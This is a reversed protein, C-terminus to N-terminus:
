KVQEKIPLCEIVELIDEKNQSIRYLGDSYFSFDCEQFYDGASKIIFEKEDKSVTFEWENQGCWSGQCFTVISSAYGKKELVQEIKKKISM